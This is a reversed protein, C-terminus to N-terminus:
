RGAPAPAPPAAPASTTGAGADGVITGEFDVARPVLLGASLVTVLVDTFRSHVRIRVDAVSKGGVLEAALVKQLSPQSVPVMGWGFWLATSRAAFHQGQAPQAADSALSVPVGLTTADFTQACGALAIVAVPAAARLLRSLTRNV